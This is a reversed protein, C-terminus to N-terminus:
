GGILDIVTRTDGDSDLHVVAGRDAIGQTADVLALLHDVTCTDLGSLDVDLELVGADVLSSLEEVVQAAAHPDLTGCLFVHAADDDVSSIVQLLPSSADGPSERDTPRARLSATM